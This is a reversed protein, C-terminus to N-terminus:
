GACCSLRAVQHMDLIQVDHASGAIRKVLKVTESCTPRGPTFIEITRRQAM